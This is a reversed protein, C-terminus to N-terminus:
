IINGDLGVQTSPSSTGRHLNEFPMPTAPTTWPKIQPTTQHPPMKSLASPTRPSRNSRKDLGVSVPLSEIWGQITLAQEVLLHGFSREAQLSSLGFSAALCELIRRRRGLLSRAKAIVQGNRCVMPRRWLRKLLEHLIGCGPQVALVMRLEGQPLTSCRARCMFYSLM